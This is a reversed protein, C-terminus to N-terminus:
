VPIEKRSSAKSANRRRALLAGGLGLAALTGPEPVPEYSLNDVFEMLGLSPEVNYRLTLRDFGAEHFIAISQDTADNGNLVITSTAVLEDGLYGNLTATEGGQMYNPDDNGLDMQMSKLLKDSRIVLHSDDYDTGVLLGVGFDLRDGDVIFLDEGNSDFFRLQPDEVSSFGNMVPGELEHSFGIFEAAAFGACALLILVTAFRMM